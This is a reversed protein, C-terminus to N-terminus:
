DFIGLGEQLHVVEVPTTPRGVIMGQSNAVICAGVIPVGFNATSRHVPVQLVETVLAAEKETARPHLVVGRNTAVGAMGVTGLGAITGREARVGLARGITTVANDSFEPHVLAGSDNVLINNGMANQRHAVVTLPAIAELTGREDPDVEGGVIIGKSNAAVLAGVVECDLVTTRVVRVGLLRVLDREVPTPTDDPVIAFTDGVRVYVGLYPSGSFLTRGVPV